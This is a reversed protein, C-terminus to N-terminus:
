VCASFSPSLVAQAAAMQWGEFLGRYRGLPLNNPVYLWGLCHSLTFLRGSHGSFFDQNGQSTDKLMTVIGCSIGMEWLLLTRELGKFQFWWVDCVRLVESKDGVHFTDLRHGLSQSSHSVSKMTKKKRELDLATHYWQILLWSLERGYGKCNM